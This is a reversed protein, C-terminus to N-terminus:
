TYSDIKTMMAVFGERGKVVVDRIEKSSIFPIVKDYESVADRCVKVIARSVDKVAARDVNLRSFFGSMNQVVRNAAPATEGYLKVLAIHTMGALRNGADERLMKLFELQEATVEIKSISSKGQQYWTYFDDAPMTGNELVEYIKSCTLLRLMVRGFNSSDIGQKLIRFALNVGMERNEEDVLMANVQRVFEDAKEQIWPKKQNPDNAAAKMVADIFEMFGETRAIVVASSSSSEHRSNQVARRIRAKDSDFRAVFLAIDFFDEEGLDPADFIDYISDLLKAPLPELDEDDIGSAQSDRWLGIAMRAAKLKESADSAGDILFGMQSSALQPSLSTAVLALNAQLSLNWRGEVAKQLAQLAKEPEGLMVQSAALVNLAEDRVDEENSYRLSERALAGADNWRWDNLARISAALFVDAAAIGEAPSLTLGLLTSATEESSFQNGGLTFSASSKFAMPNAPVAFRLSVSDPRAGQQIESLATTLDEIEFQANDGGKVRRSKLAFAKVADDPSCGFSVGLVLHPATIPSFVENKM